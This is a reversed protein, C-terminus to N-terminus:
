QNVTAILSSTLMTTGGMSNDACVTVHGTVGYIYVENRKKGEETTM